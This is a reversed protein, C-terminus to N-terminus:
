IWRRVRARYAEYAPGFKEILIREEPQIQFRDIYAIFAVPGALSLPSALLIAWALLVLMLGVYMPNRTVRYVGTTILSSANEPRLPNVTTRARRFAQGGAVSFSLGALAVLGALVFRLERSAAVPPLLRSLLWMLVVLMLAVLPPPIKLDLRPM